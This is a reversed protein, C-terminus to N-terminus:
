MLVYKWFYCCCKSLSSCVDVFLALLTCCCRFFYLLTLLALRLIFSLFSKSSDFLSLMCSNNATFPRLYKLKLRSTFLFLFYLFVTEFIINRQFNLSEVQQQIIEEPSELKTMTNKKWEARNACCNYCGRSHLFLGNQELCFFSFLIRCSIHMFTFGAVSKADM